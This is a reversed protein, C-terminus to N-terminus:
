LDQFASGQLYIRWPIGEHTNEYLPAFQLECNTAGSFTYLNARTTREGKRATDGARATEDCLPAVGVPAHRRPQEPPPTTARTHPASPAAAAGASADATSPPALEAPPPIRAALVAARVEAAVAPRAPPPSAKQSPAPRPTPQTAERAARRAPQPLPGPGQWAWNAGLDPVRRGHHGAAAERAKKPAQQDIRAATNRAKRPAAAPLTPIGPRRGQFPPAIQNAPSGTARTSTPAM